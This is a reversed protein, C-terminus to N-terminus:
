QNKKTGGRGRKGMDLEWYDRLNRHSSRTTLKTQMRFLHDVADNDVNGRIEDWACGIYLLSRRLLIINLYLITCVRYCTTAYVSCPTHPIHSRDFVPFAYNSLRNSLIGNESIFDLDGLDSFLVVSLSPFFM